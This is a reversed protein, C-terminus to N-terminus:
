RFIERSEGPYNRPRCVSGASCSIGLRLRILMLRCPGLQILLRGSIWRDPPQGTMLSASRCAVPMPQQVPSGGVENQSDDRPKRTLERALWAAEVTRSM